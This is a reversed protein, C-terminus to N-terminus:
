ENQQKIGNRKNLEQEIKQYQESLRLMTVYSEYCENKKQEYQGHLVEQEKELEEITMLGIDM